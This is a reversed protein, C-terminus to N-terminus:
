ESIDRDAVPAAEGPLEDANVNSRCWEVGEATCTDIRYNLMARSFGSCQSCIELVSLLPEPCTCGKDPLVSCDGSGHDNQVPVLLEFDDITAMPKSSEKM